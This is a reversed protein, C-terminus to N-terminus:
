ARELYSGTRTDVRIRQGTEVFFPVQVILGTELTAPKTHGQATDGKYGPPTETVQLEVTNPLNIGIVSGRYFVLELEMGDTLYRLTDELLDLPVPFQEFTELDMFYYLNDEQYLYQVDREELSARPFKEGAQFTREITHGAKVDRLKMRVQASGRGIKLHQYDLVRYLVGDVEINIGKKLDGTDIM